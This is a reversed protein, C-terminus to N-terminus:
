NPTGHNEKNRAKEIQERMWKSGGLKRLEIRHWKTLSLTTQVRREGEKLSPRGLRKKETMVSGEVRQM